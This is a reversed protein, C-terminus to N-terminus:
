LVPTTSSKNFWRPNYRSCMAETLRKNKINPVNLPPIPPRFGAIGCFIKLFGANGCLIIEFVAYQM